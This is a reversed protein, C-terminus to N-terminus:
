VVLHAREWENGISFENTSVINKQEPQLFSKVFQVFFHHLKFCAVLFAIPQEVQGQRGRYKSRNSGVNFEAAHALRSHYLSPSSPPPSPSLSSPPSPSLSPFSPTLPLTSLPSSLTPLHSLPPSPSLSPSLDNVQPCM